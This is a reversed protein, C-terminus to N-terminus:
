EPAPAGSRILKLALRHCGRAEELDGSRCSEELRARLRRLDDLQSDTLAPTRGLAEDIEGLLRGEYAVADEGPM